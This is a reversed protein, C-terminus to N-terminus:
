HGFFGKFYALWEGVVAEFESAGMQGLAKNNVKKCHQSEHNSESGIIIAPNVTKIEERMSFYLYATQKDSDHDVRILPLEYSEEKGERQHYNIWDRMNKSTGPIVADLYPKENIRLSIRTKAEKVRLTGNALLEKIFEDEQLISKFSELIAKHEM